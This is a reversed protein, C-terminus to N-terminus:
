VVRGLVNVYVTGFASGLVLYFTPASPLDDMSVIDQHALLAWGFTSGYIPQVAVDIIRDWVSKTPDAFLRKGEAAARAGEPMRKGSVNPPIAGSDSAGITSHRFKRLGDMAADRVKSSAEVAKSRESGLGKLRLDVHEANFRSNAKAEEARKSTIGSHLKIARAAAPQVVGDWIDGLDLLDAPPVHFRQFVAYLWTGEFDVVPPTPDGYRDKKRTKSLLPSVPVVAGSKGGGPPPLLPRVYKCVRDSSM